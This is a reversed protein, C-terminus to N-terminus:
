KIQGKTQEEMLKIAELRVDKAGVPIIDANLGLRRAWYLNAEELWSELNEERALKQGKWIKTHLNQILLPSQTLNSKAIPLLEASDIVVKTKYKNKLIGLIIRIDSTLQNIQPYISSSPTIGPRGPVLRAMYARMQMVSLKQEIGRKEALFAREAAMRDPLAVQRLKKQLIKPSSLLWQNLKQIEGLLKDVGEQGGAVFESSTNKFRGSECDFDAFLPHALLLLRTDVFIPQAASLSHVILLLLFICLTKKIM